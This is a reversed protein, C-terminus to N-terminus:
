QKESYIKQIKRIRIITNIDKYIFAQEINIVKEIKLNKPLYSIAYKREIEKNM